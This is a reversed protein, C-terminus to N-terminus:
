ASWGDVDVYPQKLIEEVPAAKDIFNEKIEEKLKAIQAAKAAAQRQRRREQKAAIKDEAEKREGERREQIKKKYAQVCDVHKQSRKAMYNNILTSPYANHGNLKNLEIQAEELLWPLVDPEMTTQM